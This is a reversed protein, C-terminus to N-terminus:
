GGCPPHPYFNCKIFRNLKQFDDGEVRLTHISIIGLGGQSRAIYTVRWVSPTSLFGGDTPPMQISHM